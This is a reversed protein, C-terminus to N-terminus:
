PNPSFKGTWGYTFFDSKVEHSYLKIGYENYDAECTFVEGIEGKFGNHCDAKPNIKVKDGVKYKM